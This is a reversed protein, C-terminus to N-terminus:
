YRVVRQLCFRKGIDLRVRRVCSNGPDQQQECLSSIPAAGQPSSAAGASAPLRGGTGELSVKHPRELGKGMGMDRRQVRELMNLDEKHKPVWIQGGFPPSVAEAWLLSPCDGPRAPGPAGLLHQGEQSGPFM